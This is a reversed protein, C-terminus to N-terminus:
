EAECLVPHLTPSSITIASIHESVGWVGMENLSSLTRMEVWLGQMVQGLGERDEGGEEKGRM